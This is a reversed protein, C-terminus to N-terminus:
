TPGVKRSTLVHSDVVGLRLQDYRATHIATEFGYAELEQVLDAGYTRYALIRGTLPDGHYEAPEVLLRDPGGEVPRVRELTPRDFCLPVTFIHLGGPRLVRSIESFARAPYRVHELVDETIVVDYSGSPFTLAQLDQCTGGTELPAGLPADVLQSGQFRDFRRLYRWIQDGVAASYVDKDLGPLAALSSAAGGTEELLLSVVHRKRSFSRCWMCFLDERASSADSCVFVTAWGCLNCRGSRHWRANAAMRRVLDFRHMHGSGLPSRRVAAHHM